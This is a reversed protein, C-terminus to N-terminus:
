PALVTRLEMSNSDNFRWAESEDGLEFMEGLVALTRRGTRAGIRGLTEIAARMGIDAIQMATAIYALETPSKRARAERVVATGDVVALGEGEFATQFQGSIIRNPRYSGMELGVPGTLWGAAKLEALVFDVAGVQKTRPFHRLDRAVTQYRALVAEEYQDFLIFDDHDVHVAIGSVAPWVWPSQAQYWESQYGSLYHLSEPASLYLLDIQQERMGERVRRLRETYEALSFPVEMQPHLHDLTQQKLSLRRETTM